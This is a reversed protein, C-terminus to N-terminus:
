FNIQARVSFINETTTTVASSVTSAASGPAGTNNSTSSLISVPRDFKTMAYNFKIATSPNLLWNLGYTVTRAAESNEARSTGNGGDVICLTGNQWNTTDKCGTNSGPLSSKYESVRVGIQWAGTGGQGLKFNSNPKLFSFAGSKYGDSWREGTLNYVFEAYKTDSTVQLNATKTSACITAGSTVCNLAYANLILNSAEAQFKFPGSAYAFELNNLTKEIEAANNALAGYAATVSDGGIQVRYANALGRDETRYTLLTARTTGSAANGSDTSTAPTSEYKGRNTSAGFHIVQGNLNNLEGFNVTARGTGLGGINDTNTIENFGAQALALGYTFGKRPEGFVGVGLLKNPGLQDGYSREMFDIANDKTMAELSYPQRFRGVRVQAQKVASFNLYGTDLINTDSGTANVIVEYDVEKYVTGNVGLRVRRFEFADAVSASDKDTMHPLGSRIVHADFHVMGTLNISSEGDASVLGFGSAKVAGDKEHTKAHDIAKQIDAEEAAFASVGTFIAFMTLINAIPKLKFKDNLNSM